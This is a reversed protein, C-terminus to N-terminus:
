GIPARPLFFGGIGVFTGRNQPPAHRLWEACRLKGLHRLSSPARRSTLTNGPSPRSSMRVRAAAIRPSTVSTVDREQRGAQLIPHSPPSRRGRGESGREVGKRGEAVPRMQPRGPRCSRCPQTEGEGEEGDGRKAGEEGEASRDLIAASLLLPLASSADSKLPSM